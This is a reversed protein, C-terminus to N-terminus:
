VKIDIERGAIPQDDTTKKQPTYGQRQEREHRKDETEFSVADDEFTKVVGRSLRTAQRTSHPKDQEPQTREIKM